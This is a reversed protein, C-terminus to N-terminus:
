NLTNGTIAKLGRPVGDRIKDMPLPVGIKGTSLVLVEEKRCGLHDAVIGAEERSQALGKRGTGANANGSTVIVARFTRSSALHEKCVKLPAAPFKHTTFVGAAISGEDAVLLGMDRKHKKIGCAIGSAQFGSPYTISKKQSRINM